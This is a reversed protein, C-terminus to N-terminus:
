AEKCTFPTKFFIEFVSHNLLKSGHKVGPLQYKPICFTLFVQYELLDYSVKGRLFSVASIITLFHKSYFTREGLVQKKIKLEM